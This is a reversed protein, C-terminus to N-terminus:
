VTGSLLSADLISGEVIEVSDGLHAINSRRVTSFDDIIRVEHGEALLLDVLNSGIFGAGGTVLIRVRRHYDPAEAGGSGGPVPFGQSSRHRRGGFAGSRCRGVM